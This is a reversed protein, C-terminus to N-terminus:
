RIMLVRSSSHVHNVLRARVLAGTYALDISLTLPCSRLSLFHTVVQTLRDLKRLQEIGM